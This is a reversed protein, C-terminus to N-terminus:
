SPARQMAHSLMATFADFLKRMQPQKYPFVEVPDIAHVIMCSDVEFILLKG